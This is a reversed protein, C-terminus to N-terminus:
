RISRRRALLYFLITAVSSVFFLFIGLWFGDMKYNFILYALLSFGSLKLAIAVLGKFSQIKRGKDLVGKVQYVVGTMILFGSLGFFFYRVWDDM